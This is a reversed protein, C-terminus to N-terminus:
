HVETQDTTRDDAGRIQRLARGRQVRPDVGLAAALRNRARHLRTRAAVPSCGLVVAAKAPALGEWAVLRLIEKDDEELSSLAARITESDFPAIDGADLRHREVAMRAVLSQHRAQSRSRNRLLNRAVGYLWPIPDDPPLSARRTWAIEFTAAVLDDADSGDLGRHRAYRQLAPYVEEFLARFAEEPEM